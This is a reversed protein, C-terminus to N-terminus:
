HRSDADHESQPYRDPGYLWLFRDGFTIIVASLKTLLDGKILANKVSIRDENM